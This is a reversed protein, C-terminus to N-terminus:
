ARSKLAAYGREGGDGSEVPLGQEVWSPCRKRGFADKEGGFGGIVDTAGPFGEDALLAAAQRSRVGSQCGVLIRTGPAFAAKVVRVFDPNPAMRGAYPDAELLPVHYAGAPHGQLFEPTSRVDLYVDAEGKVLREYAEKQSCRAPANGM